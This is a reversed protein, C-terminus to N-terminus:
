TPPFPLVRFKQTWLGDWSPRSEFLPLPVSSLIADALADFGVTQAFWAKIAEVPAVLSGLSLLAERSVAPGATGIIDVLPEVAGADCLRLRM